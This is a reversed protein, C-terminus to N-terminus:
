QAKKQVGAMQLMRETVAKQEATPKGDPGLVAEAEFEAPMEEEHEAIKLAFAVDSQVKGRAKTRREVESAQGSLISGDPIGDIAELVLDLIPHTAQFTKEDLSFQFDEVTAGLFPALRENAYKPTIAFRNVHREIESIYAKRIGVRHAKPLVQVPTTPASFTVGAPKNPESMANKESMAIPAPVEREQGQDPEATKSALIANGATVIREALNEETTDDPLTLGLQALTALTQKIDGASTEKQEAAEEKKETDSEDRSAPPTQEITGVQFEFDGGSFAAEAIRGKPVVAVKKIARTVRDLVVSLPIRDPYRERLADYVSRPVKVLGDIYEGVRKISSPIIGGTFSVPLNVDSNGHPALDLPIETQVTSLQVIADLEDPSVSIGKDPYDGAKFLRAPREVSEVPATPSSSEASFEVVPQAPAVPGSQSKNRTQRKNAM